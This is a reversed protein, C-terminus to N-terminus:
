WRIRNWVTRVAEASGPHALHRGRAPVEGEHAEEVLRPAVGEVLGDVHVALEEVAVALQDLGAEVVHELRLALGDVPDNM